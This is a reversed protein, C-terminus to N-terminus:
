AYEVGVRNGKVLNCVLHACQVNTSSHAGGLSIPQVHDLSASLPDPYVRESDVPEGCLGCVWGDREYIDRAIILEGPASAGRILANRRDFAAKRQPTWGPYRVYAKGRSKALQVGHRKRCRPSCYKVAFHNPRFADGCDACKREGVQQLRARRKCRDSCYEAMTMREGCQRCPRLQCERCVTNGAKPRCRKGCAECQVYGAHHADCRVRRSGPAKQVILTGCDLCTRM